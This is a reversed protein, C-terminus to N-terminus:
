LNQAGTQLAPELSQSLISLTAEQGSMESDHRSWPSWLFRGCVDGCLYHM